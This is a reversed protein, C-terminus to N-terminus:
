QADRAGFHSIGAATADDARVGSHDPGCVGRAAARDVARDRASRILHWLRHLMPSCQMRRFNARLADVSPHAAVSM